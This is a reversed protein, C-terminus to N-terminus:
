FITAKSTAFCINPTDTINPQCLLLPTSKKIKEAITSIKFTAELAKTYNGQCNYAFFLSRLGLFSGWAYDLEKSLDTIQQAYFISSDFQNFGYYLALRYLSAVKATDEKANNVQLHLSDLYNTQAFSSRAIMFVLCFLLLPKM